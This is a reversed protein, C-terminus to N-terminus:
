KIRPTTNVPMNQSEAANIPAIIRINATNTNAMANPKLNEIAIIAERIKKAFEDVADTSVRLKDSFKEFTDKLEAAMRAQMNLLQDGTPLQSIDTKFARDVKDAIIKDIDAEETAPM